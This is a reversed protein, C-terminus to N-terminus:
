KGLRQQMAKRQKEIEPMDYGFQFNEYTAGLPDQPAVLPVWVLENNQPNRTEFHTVNGDDDYRLGRRETGM